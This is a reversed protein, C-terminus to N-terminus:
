IMRPKKGQKLLIDQPTLHINPCFRAIWRPFPVVHCHKVEKNMAKFVTPKHQVITSHNGYHLYALFNDQSTETNFYAPCEYTRSRHLHKIIEPDLGISKLKSIIAKIDTHSSTYNGGTYRIVSALDFNYHLACALFSTVKNQPIKEQTQYSTCIQQLTSFDLNRVTVLHIWLVLFLPSVLILNKFDSFKLFSSKLIFIIINEFVPEKLFSHAPSISGFSNKNTALASARSYLHHKGQDNDIDWAECTTEHIEESLFPSYDSCKTSNQM